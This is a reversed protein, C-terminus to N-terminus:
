YWGHGAPLLLPQRSCFFNYVTTQSIIQLKELCQLQQVPSTVCREARKFILVNFLVDCRPASFLFLSFFCSVDPLKIYFCLLLLSLVHPPISSYEVPSWSHLSVLRGRPSASRRGIVVCVAGALLHRGTKHARESNLNHIHKWEAIFRSQPPFLIM